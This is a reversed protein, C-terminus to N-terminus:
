REDHESELTSRISLWFAELVQTMQQKFQTKTTAPMKGM